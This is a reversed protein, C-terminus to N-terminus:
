VGVVSGSLYFRGTDAHTQLEDDRKTDAIPVV